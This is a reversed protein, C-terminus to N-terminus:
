KWDLLSFAIKLRRKKKLWPHLKLKTKLHTFSWDLSNTTNPMDIIWINDYWAWLYSLNRKLSMYASKTRSHIYRIKWSYPNISIENLFDKYKEYWEELWFTFCEKDTKTLLLTLNRLEINAKLKPKKTIYRTVIQLQHFQCMQVPYFMSFYHLNFRRYFIGVKGTILDEEIM